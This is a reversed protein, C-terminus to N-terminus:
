GSSTAPRALISRVKEALVSAKFPKSLFDLHPNDAGHPTTLIDAYGSVFLVRLSPRVGVLRQALAPGNMGPMVVDSLLLDIRDPYHEALEIAAAPTPAELVRYGHRRLATSIILRVADEDEVLLVTQDGTARADPEVVMSQVQAVVFVAPFYMTFTTGSGPASDVTIFGDSQRVIGYVSALGLGTGKGFEKTTFFPEFLHARTEASMGVGDDSVRLRVYEGPAPPPSPAGTPVTVRDVAIDIRGGGPLADRANLVLNLIVQEIQNADIRVWAPREAVACRLAIDERILRGLMNQLGAVTQNLDVDKPLLVQKRSFALLQQTLTAARQGAKQVEELDARDPDDASRNALLLETYGLIATLLNNFDHAIGGALRGISEIRESQVLREELNRRDTVDRAICLHRHAQVRARYTCELVRAGDTSPLRHERKSAGAAMLESWAAGVHEAEDLLLEELRRGVLAEASVGALAAAAPNAEVIRRDDDLILIADVADRFVAHYCSVPTPPNGERGPIM